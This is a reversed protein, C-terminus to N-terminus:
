VEIGSSNVAVALASSKQLESAIRSALGEGSEGPRQTVNFVNSQRNSNNVSSASNNNISAGAARAGTSASPIDDSGFLRGVLPISSVIDTIGSVSEKVFAILRSPISSVFSVFSDVLGAFFNYIGTGTEVFFAGIALGVSKLGDVAKWFSKVIFAIFMEVNNVTGQYQDAVWGAAEVLADLAVLGQAEMEAWFATINDVVKLFEMDMEEPTMGLFNAITPRVSEHVFAGLKEGLKGIASEGGTFFQYLDEGILLFLAIIAAITIPILAAKINMLLAETGAVRMLGIFTKIALFVKAGFTAALAVGVLKLANEMGGLSEVFNSLRDILWTIQTALWTMARGIGDAWEAIKSKIIDNNVVVWDAYKELLPALADGLLGFFEQKATRAVSAMEGFASNFRVAGDRGADTLLNLKLQHEILTLLDGDQERLFGLIKNAEGGMLIDVASVAAQQNDLNKAADLIKVFQEEPALDKITKFGLGLIKLSDTVGSIPKGLGASEGIKNNMEEVLDAVNDIEFGLPRVIAGMSELFESSVGVSKALAVNAATAQNVVATLATLAGAAGVVVVTAAKLMGTVGDVQKQFEGLEKSDVEWGLFAVFEEVYTTM